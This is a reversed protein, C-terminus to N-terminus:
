NREDCLQDILQRYENVKYKWRSREAFERANASYRPYNDVIERLAEAVEETNKPDVLRGSYGDQIADAVGSDRSGIAPVGLAMSEVAAIGFGEFDGNELHESLMMFVHSRKLLDLVGDDYLGRHFVVHDHLEYRRILKRLQEEEISLGVIHYKANPFNKLIRPLARIVNAQGKRRHIGGVTVLELWSGQPGKSADGAAWDNRIGNNIVRVDDPDISPYQSSLQQRTFGSVCVIRSIKKLSYESLHRFLGKQKIESGHIVAISTTRPLVANLWLPFKGSFIVADWATNRVLRNAKVIRHCYTFASVAKRRIGFITLDKNARVFRLWDGSRRERQETLVAVEFGLGSLEKALCYAHNGIGGPM